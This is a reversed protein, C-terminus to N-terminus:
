PADQNRASRSLDPRGDQRGRYIDLKGSRDRGSCDHTHQRDRSGQFWWQAADSRFRRASHGSGMIAVLKATEGSSGCGCCRHPEAPWTSGTREAEQNERGVPRDVVTSTHRDTESGLADSDLGGRVGDGPGSWSRTSCSPGAVFLQGWINRSVLAIPEITSAQRQALAPRLGLRGVTEKDEIPVITRPGDLWGYWIPRLRYHYDKRSLVMHSGEVWVVTGTEVLAIGIRQPRPGGGGGQASMVLYTPASAFLMPGAARARGSPVTQFADGLNDDKIARHEWRPNKSSRYPSTEM